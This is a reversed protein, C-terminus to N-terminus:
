ARRARQLPVRAALEEAGYGDKGQLIRRYLEWNPRHTYHVWHDGALPLKGKLDLGETEGWAVIEEQGLDVDVWARYDRGDPHYLAADPRGEIGLVEGGVAFTGLAHAADHDLDAEERAIRLAGRAGLVSNIGDAHSLINFFEPRHHPDAQDIRRLTTAAQEWMCAGALLVVKGIRDLVQDDVPYRWALVEIAKMVTRTGLSHCVLNIKEDTRGQADLRRVLQVLSAALGHGALKADSYALAYFNQPRGLPNVFDFAGSLLARLGTVGEAITDGFSSYGYCLALGDCQERTGHGTDFFARALWPSVHSSHEEDQDSAAEDFHFLRMHPNESELRTPKDERAEFQFGHVFAIIPQGPEGLMGDDIDAFHKGFASHENFIAQVAFPRPGSQREVREFKIGDRADRALLDRQTEGYMHWPAEQDGIRGSRCSSIRLVAM